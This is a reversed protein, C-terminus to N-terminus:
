VDVVPGTALYGNSWNALARFFREGDARTLGHINRDLLFDTEDDPVLRGNVFQLLGLQTFQPTGDRKIEVSSLVITKM